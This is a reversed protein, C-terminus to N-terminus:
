INWGQIKEVENQLEIIKDINRETKYKIISKRIKNYKLAKIAELFYEPIMYTIFNRSIFLENAKEDMEGNNIYNLYSEKYFDLDDETLYRKAILTFEKSLLITGYIDRIIDKTTFPVSNAQTTSPVSNAQTMYNTAIINEKIIDKIDINMEKSLIIALKEKIFVEQSNIMKKLIKFKENKQYTDKGDMLYRVYFTFGNTASLELKNNIEGIDKVNGNVSVKYINFINHSFCVDFARITANKGANDNDFCFGISIDKDIKILQALHTENFATGCTAVVENRGLKHAKIVDMYGEVIIVKKNKHITERAMSLGYLTKNKTYLGSSKSNIYKAGSFTAYDHSRGAFAIINGLSDRIGFIIRNAFVFRNNEYIIGLTKAIKLQKENLLKIYNDSNYPCFGIDYMKFDDQTLGRAYLYERIKSYLDNNKLLEDKFYTNTLLTIERAMKRWATNKSIKNDSSYTYDYMNAIIEIAEIFSVNKYSQIFSIVDGNRGCGFCHFYNRTPNVTFSGTKETHFPCSCVYNSGVRKLPLYQSIVDVINAIEKLEQLNGM